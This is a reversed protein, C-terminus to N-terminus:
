RDPGSTEERHPGEGSLMQCMAVRVTELAYIEARAKDLDEGRAKVLAQLVKIEEGAAVTAKALEILRTFGAMTAEAVAPMNNTKM